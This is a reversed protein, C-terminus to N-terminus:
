EEILWKASVGIAKAVCALKDSQFPKGDRWDYLTRQSIRVDKDKLLRHLAPITEVGQNEMLEKVRVKM